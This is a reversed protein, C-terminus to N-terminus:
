NQRGEVSQTLGNFDLALEARGRKRLRIGRGRPM